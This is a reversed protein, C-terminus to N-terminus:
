TQLQQNQVRVRKHLARAHARRESFLGRDDSDDEEDVQAGMSEREIVGDEESEESGETDSDGESSGSEEVDPGPTASLQGQDALVDRHSDWAEYVRRLRLDQKCLKRHAKSIGSSLKLQLKLMGVISPDDVNTGNKWAVMQRMAEQVVGTAFVPVSLDISKGDEIDSLQIVALAFARKKKVVKSRTLFSVVVSCSHRFKVALRIPKSISDSTVPGNQSASLSRSHSSTRDFSATSKAFAARDLGKIISRDSETEIMVRVDRDTLHAFSPPALSNIRLTAVEYASVRAPLHIEM